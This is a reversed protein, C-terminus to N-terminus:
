TSCKYKLRSERRSLRLFAARFDAKTCIKPFKNRQVWRYKEPFNKKLWKEFEKKALHPSVKPCFLHHHECLCLGCELKHRTLNHRRPVLHHAQLNRGTGCYACRGGQAVVRSWAIDARKKWYRSFPNDRQSLM